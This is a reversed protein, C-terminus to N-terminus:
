EIHIIIDEPTDVEVKSKSTADFGARSLIDKCANLRVTDSTANRMLDVLTFIAEGAVGEMIAQLENRYQKSFEKNQQWNRITRASVGIEDAIEQQTKGEILLKIAQIQQSSLKM